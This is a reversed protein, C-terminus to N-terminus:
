DSSIRAIQFSRSDNSKGQCQMCTGFRNTCLSWVKVLKAYKQVKKVWGGVLDAYICYQVDAFVAM